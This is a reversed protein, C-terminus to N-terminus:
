PQEGWAFTQGTLCPHIKIAVGLYSAFSAIDSIQCVARQPRKAAQIYVKGLRGM